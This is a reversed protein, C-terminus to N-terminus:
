VRTNQYSAVSCTKRVTEAGTKRHKCYADNRGGRWNGIGDERRACIEDANCCNNFERRSGKDLCVNTAHTHTDMSKRLESVLKEAESVREDVMNEIPSKFHEFAEVVINGDSEITLINRSM